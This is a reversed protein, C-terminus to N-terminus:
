IININIDDNTITKYTFYQKYSIIFKKFVSIDIMVNYFEKFIYRKIIIYIFSDQKYNIVDKILRVFINVFLNELIISHIFSRDTLITM